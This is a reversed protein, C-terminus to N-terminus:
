LDGRPVVLVVHTTFWNFLCITVVPVGCQLREPEDRCDFELPRFDTWLLSCTSVFQVYYM